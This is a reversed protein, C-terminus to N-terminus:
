PSVGSGVGRRRLPDDSRLRRLRQPQDQGPAAAVLYDADGAALRALAITLAPRGTIDKASIGADGDIIEIDWGM